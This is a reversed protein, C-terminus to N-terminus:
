FIASEVWCMFGWANGAAARLDATQGSGSRGAAWAVISVAAGELYGDTRSRLLSAWLSMRASSQFISQLTMGDQHPWSCVGTFDKLPKATQKQSRCAWLPLCLGKQLLREFTLFQQFPYAATLPIPLDVGAKLMDWRCSRHSHQRQLRRYQSPRRIPAAQLSSLM